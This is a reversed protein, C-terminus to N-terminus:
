ARAHGCWRHSTELGLLYASPLRWYHAHKTFLPAANSASLGSMHPCCTARHLTRKLLDYMRPFFYGLNTHAERIWDWLYLDYQIYCSLWQKSEGLNELSRISILPILNKYTPIHISIILSNILPNTKDRTSFNDSFGLDSFRCITPMKWRSRLICFLARALHM